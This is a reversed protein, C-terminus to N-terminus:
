RLFETHWTSHLAMFRFLIANIQMLYRAYILSVLKVIVVTKGEEKLM